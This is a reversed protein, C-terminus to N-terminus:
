KFTFSTIIPLHDSYNVNIRQAKELQLNKFFVYDVKLKGQYFRKIFKTALRQIFNYQEKKGDSQYTITYNISTTAETLGYQQMFKELVRRRYPFYNFDGAVIIPLRPNNKISDLIEKIQKHRAGNSEVLSLHINFVVLKKRTKKHLLHSELITRPENGGRLTRTIALFLEYISRPLPVTLTDIMSFVEANYFTANGYISGFKIFTNAYDALKYNLQELKKINKEDTDIEQLCIIDPKYSTLISEIEAIAKNFLTNYTLLSFQM